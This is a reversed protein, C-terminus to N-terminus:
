RKPWSWELNLDIARKSPRCGELGERLADLARLAARRPEELGATDVGAEALDALRHAARRATVALSEITSTVLVFGLANIVHSDAHLRPFAHPTEGARRLDKELLDLHYAVPSPLM